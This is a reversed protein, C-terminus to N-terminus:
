SLTFKVDVDTAVEVPKGNLYTPRYTWQKVASVAADVLLPNGSIVHLNKVTGNPAIIAALQVVGSVRAQRAIQPYVPTVEHTLRAAQVEGGVRIQAPAKAVPAPQAPPAPPAPPAGIVGGLSGGLIGGLVGGPIGGQIGATPATLGSLSPPAEAILPVQQPIPAPTATKPLVFTRPVPRAAAHTRMAEAPPAPPPPPAPLPPAILETALELKPLQAVFMVPIVFVVFAVVLAQLIVALATSRAQHTGGTPLLMQEFM